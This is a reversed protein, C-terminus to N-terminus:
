TTRSAPASRGSRSTAASTGTRTTRRSRRRASGSAVDPTRHLVAYSDTTGSNDSWTGLATFGLHKSSSPVVYLKPATFNSAEIEESASNRACIRMTLSYQRGASVPSLGLGLPKGHRADITLKSSGSVKVTKGALTITGNTTVLDARRVDGQGVKKATGSRMVITSSTAVDVLRLGASVGVIEEEVLEIEVWAQGHIHETLM